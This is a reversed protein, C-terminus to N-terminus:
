QGCQEGPCFDCVLFFGYMCVYMCIYMCAYMIKFAELIQTHFNKHVRVYMLMCIYMCIYKSYPGDRVSQSEHVSDNNSKTRNEMLESLYKREFATKLSHM